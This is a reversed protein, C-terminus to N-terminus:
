NTFQLIPIKFNKFLLNLTRFYTDVRLNQRIIRNFSNAMIAINRMNFVLLELNATM